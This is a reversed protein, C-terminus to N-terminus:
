AFGVGAIAEVRGAPLHRGLVEVSGADPAIVGLLMLLTTTKGAGNPGLLAVREGPRVCLDVHDVARVDRFTKVLGDARLAHEMVVLTAARPRRNGPIGGTPHPQVTRRM